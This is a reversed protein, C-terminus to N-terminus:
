SRLSSNPSHEYVSFPDLIASRLNVNSPAKTRKPAPADFAPPDFTAVPPGATKLVRDLAGELYVATLGSAWYALDQSNPQTTERTSSLSRGTLTNQFEIWGEWLGDDRERGSVKATYSRGQGDRIPTDFQAFTEIMSTSRRSSLVPILGDEGRAPWVTRRGSILGVVFLVLAIVLLVYIFNGLTYGSVLGLVWLVLLVAAITFLM